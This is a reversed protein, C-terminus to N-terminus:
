FLILIRTVTLSTVREDAVTYPRFKTKSRLIGYFNANILKIVTLRLIGCLIALTKTISVTSRQQQAINFM